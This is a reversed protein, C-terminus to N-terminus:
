GAEQLMRRPVRQKDGQRQRMSQGQDPERRDRKDGDAKPPVRVGDRVIENVPGKEPGPTQVRNERGDFTQHQTNRLPKPPVAVERMVTAPAPAPAPRSLKGPFCAKDKREPAPQQRARRFKKQVSIQRSPENAETQALHLPVELMCVARRAVVAPEVIQEEKIVTVMHFVM